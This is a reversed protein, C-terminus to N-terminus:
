NERKVTFAFIFLKSTSKDFGMSIEMDNDLVSSFGIAHYMSFGSIFGTTKPSQIPFTESPFDAVFKLVIKKLGWPCPVWVSHKPWM